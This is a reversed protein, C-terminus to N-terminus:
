LKAFDEFGNAILEDQCAFMDHTELHANVINALTPMDDIIVRQLNAIKFLGMINSKLPNGTLDIQKVSRVHEHINHLNTLRNGSLNLSEGIVPTCGNLSRIQNNRVNFTKGVYSPSGKLSTIYNNEIDMYDEVTNPGGELSGLNCSGMKLNHLNFPSDILSFLQKRKNSADAECHFISPFGKFSMGDNVHYDNLKDSLYDVSMKLDYDFNVVKSAKESYSCLSSIKEGRMFTNGFKLETHEKVKKGDIELSSIVQNETM